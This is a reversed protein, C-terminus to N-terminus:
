RHADTGESHRDDIRDTPSLPLLEERIIPIGRDCEFGLKVKNGEIGVVVVRIHQGIIVSESIKRSLVLILCRVKRALFFARLRGEQGPVGRGELPRPRPDFGVASTNGM